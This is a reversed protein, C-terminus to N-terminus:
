TLVEEPFNLKAFEGHYEKAKKDYALAAEKEDLFTGIHEKKNTLPNRIMARWSKYSFYVGKYQSSCENKKQLNYKNQNKTAVRLNSRCCNLTDHDKHDVWENSLLKRGLVREMIVRALYIARHTPGCENNQRIRETRYAYFSDAVQKHKIHKTYWSVNCLDRDEEDILAIKDKTLKVEIM